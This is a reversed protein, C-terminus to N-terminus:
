EKEKVIAGHEELLVAVLHRHCFDGSKEFCCLIKEDFQDIIETWPVKRSDILELFQVSYQEETIIKKHVNNVLEWTPAFIPLHLMNPLWKPVYISISVANKLKGHKAYYGTYIM